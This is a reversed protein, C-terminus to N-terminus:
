VNYDLWEVEERHFVGAALAAEVSTREFVDVFHQPAGAGSSAVVPTRVSRRVLDVLDLDYGQNTGDRDISNLLIEGAGLTEVGTCQYWWARPRDSKSPLSVAREDCVLETAHPGDYTEPDVLVRRPDVSVMVAQRGYMRSITEIPSTGDGQGMGCALLREVPIVAENGISFSPSYRSTVSHLTVSPPSISYVHKTPEFYRMALTVSKGLNRVKHAPAIVPGMSTSLFHERGYQTATEVRERARNEKGSTLLAVHNWDMHPVPKGANDFLGIPSDIIGLGDVSPPETSLAFLIQM